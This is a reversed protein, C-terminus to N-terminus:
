IMWNSVMTVGRVKPAATFSTNRVYDYVGNQQDAAFHPTKEIFFRSDPYGSLLYLPIM